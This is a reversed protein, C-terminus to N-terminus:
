EESRSVPFHVMQSAALPSVNYGSPNALPSNGGALLNGSLADKNDLNINM